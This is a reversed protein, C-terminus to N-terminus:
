EPSTSNSTSRMAMVLEDPASKMRLAGQNTESHIYLSVDEKKRISYPDCQRFCLIICLGCLKKYSWEERKAMLGSCSLLECLPSYVHHKSGTCVCRNFMGIFLCNAPIDTYPFLLNGTIVYGIYACLSTVTGCICLINNKVILAEFAFEKKRMSENDYKMDKHMAVFRRLRISFQFGFFCNLGNILVVICPTIDYKYAILNDTPVICYTIPKHTHHPDWEAICHIDNAFDCLLAISMITPIMIILIQLVIVMRRDVELYSGKFSSKLKEFVNQLYLAYYFAPFFHATYAAVKCGINEQLIHFHPDIGYRLIASFLWIFGVVLLLMYFRELVRSRTMTRDKYMIWLARVLLLSQFFTMLIYWGVYFSYPGSFIDFEGDCPQNPSMIM